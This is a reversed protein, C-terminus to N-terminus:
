ACITRMVRINVILIGFYKSIILLFKFIDFRIDATSFACFRKYVGSQFIFVGNNM